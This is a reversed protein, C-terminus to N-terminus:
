KVSFFLTSTVCGAGSVLGSQNSSQTKYIIHQQTPNTGNPPPTETKQLHKLGKMAHIPFPRAFRRTDDWICVKARDDQSKKEKELM